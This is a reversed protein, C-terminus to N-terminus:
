ISGVAMGPVRGPRSRAGLPRRWSCCSRSHAASHVPCSYCLHTTGPLPVVGYGLWHASTSHGPLTSSFPSACHRPRSRPIPGQGPPALPRNDQNPRVGPPKPGWHIPRHHEAPATRVPPRAKTTWGSANKRTAPAWASPGPSRRSGSWYSARAAPRRRGRGTRLSSTRIPRCIASSTQSSHRGISPYSTPKSIACRVVLIQPRHRYLPRLRTYRRQEHRPPRIWALTGPDPHWVGVRGARRQM